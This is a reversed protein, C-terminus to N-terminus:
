FRSSLKSKETAEDRRSAALEESTIVALYGIEMTRGRSYLAAYLSPRKWVVVSNIASGGMLNSVTERNTRTPPGYKKTLAFKYTDADEPDFNAEIRCVLGERTYVWIMPYNSGPNANQVLWEDKDGTGEYCPVSTVLKRFEGRSLDGDTFKCPILQTIPERFRVGLLSDNAKQSHACPVTLAILLVCSIRVGTMTYPPGNM